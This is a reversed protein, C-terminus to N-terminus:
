SLDSLRLTGKRLARRKMLYFIVPTVILVHITSTIMGGVIPAAVPKMLDAGVGSSWLIPLLGFVTTAVTMLKPRLRLISGAVTADWIDQETLVARARLRADLAEHLYVVMVVGTQVAIGYLAIYGVWVAVSFNYGLVWQLLVGGTMAYVVSLMVIAAESVSHFTLYLLVLIAALVIPLLVQLRERARVQFEYQGTWDLTFGPPLTVASAVVGQARAVYGGIDTTDTDVYIYGALKGDEDRIMAPGARTEIRALQSLPIQAGAATKVLVRGLAPLDSRYDRAYRVSVPYRERGEVTRTVTEGGIATQITEQV